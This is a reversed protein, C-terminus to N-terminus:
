RVPEDWDKWAGTDYYHVSYHKRWIPTSGVWFDYIGIWIEGGDFQQIKWKIGGKKKTTIFSTPNRLRNPGDVRTYAKWYDGAVLEAKAGGIIAGDGWKGGRFDQIRVNGWDHELNIPYGPSVGYEWVARTYAHWTGGGVYYPSDALTTSWLIAGDGLAGNRYDQILMNNWAHINDLRTGPSMGAQEAQQHAETFIEQLSVSNIEDAIASIKTQKSKVIRSPSGSWESASHIGILTFDDGKSSFCPGGPDGPGLAGGLPSNGVRFYKPDKYEDRVDIVRFKGMRWM